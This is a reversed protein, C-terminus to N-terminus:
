SERCPDPTADRIPQHRRTCRGRPRGRSADSADIMAFEAATRLRRREVIPARKAQAIGHRSNAAPRPRRGGPPVARRGTRFDTGLEVFRYGNGMGAFWNKAAM